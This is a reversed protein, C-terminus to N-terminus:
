ARCCRYGSVWACGVRAICSGWTTRPKRRKKGMVAVGEGRWLNLGVLDFGFGFVYRAHVAVTCM